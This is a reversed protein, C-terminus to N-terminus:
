SLIVPLPGGPAHVQTIKMTVPKVGEPTNEAHRANEADVWAAFIDTAAPLDVAETHVELTNWDFLKGKDVRVDARYHKKTEDM